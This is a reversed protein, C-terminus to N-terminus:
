LYLTYFRTAFLKSHYKVNQYGLHFMSIVDFFISTIKEYLISFYNMIM